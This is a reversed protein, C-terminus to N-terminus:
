AVDPPGIVQGDEVPRQSRLLHFGHIFGRFAQDIEQFLNAFPPCIM